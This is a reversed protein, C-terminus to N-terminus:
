ILKLLERFNDKAEENTKTLVYFGFIRVHCECHKSWYESCLHKKYAKTHGSSSFLTKLNDFDRIWKPQRNFM